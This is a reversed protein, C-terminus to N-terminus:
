KLSVKCRIFKYSLYTITYHTETKIKRASDLEHRTQKITINEKRFNFNYQNLNLIDNSIYHKSKPSERTKHM